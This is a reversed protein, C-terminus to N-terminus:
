KGKRKRPMKLWVGQGDALVEVGAREFAAIIKEGTEPRGGLDGGAVHLGCPLISHAAARGRARGAMGEGGRSAAKRRRDILVYATRKGTGRLKSCSSGGGGLFIRPYM